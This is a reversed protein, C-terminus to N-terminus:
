KILYFLTYYVCRVFSILQCLLFEEFVLRNSTHVVVRGLRKTGTKFLKVRDSDKDLTSDATLPKKQKWTETLKKMNSESYLFVFM